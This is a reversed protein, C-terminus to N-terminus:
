SSLHDNLFPWLCSLINCKGPSSKMRFGLLKKPTKAKKKPTGQLQEKTINQLVIGAETLYGEVCTM